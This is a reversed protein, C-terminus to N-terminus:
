FNNKRKLSSKFNSHGVKVIGELFFHLFNDLITCAVEVTTDVKFPILVFMINIEGHGFVDHFLECSVDHQGMSVVVNDM